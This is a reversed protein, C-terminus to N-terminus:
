EPKTRWLQSDALAARERVAEATAIDGDEDGDHREDDASPTTLWRNHQMEENERRARDVPYESDDDTRKAKVAEQARYADVTAAHDNAASKGHKHAGDLSIAKQQQDYTSLALAIYESSRSESELRAQLAARDEDVSRPKPKERLKAIAAEEAETATRGGGPLEDTREDSDTSDDDERTPLASHNPGAYYGSQRRRLMEADIEADSVAGRAHSGDVLDRARRALDSEGSNSQSAPTNLSSLKGTFHM